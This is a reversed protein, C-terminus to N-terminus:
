RKPRKCDCVVFLAPRAEIQSLSVSKKTESKLVNIKLWYFFIYCWFGPSIPIKLHLFPSKATGLACFLPSILAMGGWFRILNTPKPGRSL